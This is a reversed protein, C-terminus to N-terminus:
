MGLLRRAQEVDRAIEAKLADVNPFRREERLRHVLEVRVRKGYIDQAFDLLHVELSLPPRGAAGTQCIKGDAIALSSEVIDGDLLTRGGEIFIDTM